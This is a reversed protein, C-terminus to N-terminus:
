DSRPLQSRVVVQVLSGYQTGYLDEVGHHEIDQLKGLKSTWRDLAIQRAAHTYGHYDGYIAVKEVGEKFSTDLSATRRYGHYEFFQLAAEVSGDDPLNQPWSGGPGADWWTDTFGAAWALCNYRKTSKSKVRYRDGFLRPFHRRLKKTM